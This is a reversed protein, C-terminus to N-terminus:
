SSLQLSIKKGLDRTSQLIWLSFTRSNWPPSSHHVLQYKNNLCRFMLLNSTDPFIGGGCWGDKRVRYYKNNIFPQFLLYLRGWWWGGWIPYTCSPFHDSSLNSKMKSFKNIKKNYQVCITNCVYCFFILYSSFYFWPLSPNKYLLLWDTEGKNGKERKSISYM